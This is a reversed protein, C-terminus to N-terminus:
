IFPQCVCRSARSASIRRSVGGRCAATGGMVALTGAERIASLCSRDSSLCRIEARQRQYARDDGRAARCGHWRQGARYLCSPLHCRGGIRGTGPDRIGGGAGAGFDMGPQLFEQLRWLRQRAHHCGRNSHDQKMADRSPAGNRGLLIRKMRQMFGITCM